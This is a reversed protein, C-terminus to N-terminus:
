GGALERELPTRFRPTVRIGDLWATIRAAEATVMAVADAGVDELLRWVVTGDATQGWSGVIRGCWWVTPGINGTRDFVADQHAGLFWDRQAYGMPTSDLAPLLACWPTDDHPAEVAEPADVGATGHLDVEVAGAATLARRTEAVTWGSWWKLDSVLAPGYSRLWLGALTAQADPISLSGVGAPLWHTMPAWRYQSSILSGRPRTRVIHGEVALQFLIKTTANQRTEHRTGPAMLLSTRLRPELAAVENATGAGLTHLAQLTAKEVESLWSAPDTGIEADALMGLFRKRERAAVGRSAGAHVVPIHEHPLVFMTRRMGIMRVLDREVYLAAEVDSVSATPCRAAISLFVTAPDTSHVAVLSRAVEGASGATWPGLRHRRALGARRLDVTVRRM